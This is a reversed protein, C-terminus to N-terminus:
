RSKKEKPKFTQVGVGFTSPIGVTFLAKVGQDKMGQYLDNFILPTIAALGQQGVTVPQGIVDRGSALNIGTSVVPSLKGRAFSALPSLRTEGMFGKGNLEYIKGSTTAKRQAMLSQTFVRAYPQFGGWIDWRTNGSKIKGFDSSRPDLEVTIDGDTLNSITKILLMTSMGVAIFKAMDKAAEIRLQPPLKSYFGYDLGYKGLTVGRVALNPIDSLGLMNIRSAILRSAFLFWNLVPAASELGKMNGRGTATNIMSALGEYLKKNNAYTKGQEEFRDAYMTFIDWRLKNLYGVYARESAAVGRGIIPIKEAYPAGQFAEEREKVHLSEPDTIALKIKQAVDWRESNHVDDLWRNYVKEDAAAKFMFKLAENAIKPHATTAIVAQRLPASFDMSAMLTRPINLTKSFVEITKEASSKNESMQKMRRITIERKAKILEDQSQQAQKFTKPFQKQFEKNELLSTPKEEIAFDKNAIKQKITDTEKKNKKILSQLKKVGEDKNEGYFKNAELNEKTVEQIQKRLDEIEQTRKIKEKEKKPQEGSLLKDLKNLLQAEIRLNEARIAAEKKTIKKENYEGAIINRIDREQLDPIENKFQDHITKVVDALKYVGEEALSKVMKAVDPAIAFLEKAYPIITSNTEGRAKKLQERAHELINKREKVFDEHSKRSKPTSKKNKNIEKQANFAAVEDEFKKRDEEFKLKAEELKTYDANAVEKQKDTLPADNNASLETLMYDAYSGDSVTKFRGRIGLSRGAAKGHYENVTSVLDNLENLTKTYEKSSTDNKLERLRDSLEAGYRTLNVYEADSPIYDENKMKTLVKSVDWGKELLNDAEKITEVDHKTVTAERADIGFETEMKGAGSYNLSTPPYESHVLSKEEEIPPKPPEVIESKNATNEDVSSVEKNQEKGSQLYEKIRNLKEINEVRNKKALANEISHGGIFETFDSSKKLDDIYKVDTNFQSILNDIHRIADDKNNNNQSLFIQANEKISNDISPKGIIPEKPQEFGASGIISSKKTLGTDSNEANGNDISVNVNSKGLEGESNKQKNEKENNLNKNQEKGVTQEIIPEKPKPLSKQEAENNPKTLNDYANKMMFVADEVDKYQGGVKELVKKILYTPDIKLEIAKKKAANLIALKENSPNDKNFGSLANKVSASLEDVNESEEVLRVKRAIDRIEADDYILGAPANVANFEDRQEPTLSNEMKDILENAAKYRPDSRHILYNNSISQAEKYKKAGDEGFFQVELGKNHKKVADAYNDLEESNMEHIPKEPKPYSSEVINENKTRWRNNSKERTFGGGEVQSPIPEPNPVEKPFLKTAIDVLPQGYTDVTNKVSKEDHAQEAINSLYNKFDEPNNNAADKLTEASFGKVVDSNVLDKADSILKEESGTETPQEVKNAGENTTSAQAETNPVQTTQNQSEDLKQKATELADVTEKNDPNFNELAVNYEKQADFLNYLPELTHSFDLGELIQTNQEGLRKSQEIYKNKTEEPVGQQKSKNKFIAQATKNAVFVSKQAQSLDVNANETTADLDNKAKIATNLIQMKQDYEPRSYTGNDLGQKFIDATADHNLAMQYINGKFSTNKENKMDAAAGFVGMISMGLVGDLFAHGAEPLLNQAAETDGFGMKIVNNAINFYAMTAAGKTVNKGYKVAFDVYKNKANDLLEKTASETISKDTIGNAIKALEDSIPLRTIKGLDLLRGGEANAVSNIAAYLYQAPENDIFNKSDKLSADFSPLGFSTYAGLQQATKAGIGVEGALGETATSIALMGALNASTNLINRTVSVSSKLHLANPNNENGSFDKQFLEDKLKDAYVDKGNRLGTIDAVSMGLDAFPQLFSPIVNGLISNNAFYTSNGAMNIALDKTKPNDLYGLQQMADLRDQTSAGIVREMRHGSETDSGEVVGSQKAILDNVQQAIQQKILTPYKYIVENDVKGLDSQGDQVLNQDGSAIGQSIKNVANQKLADNYKLEAVGKQYNFLDNQEKNDSGILNSLISNGSNVAKQSRAYEVPNLKQAIDNVAQDKDPNEAVVQKIVHNLLEDSIPQMGFNLALKDQEQADLPANLNQTKATKLTTSKALNLFDYASKSSSLVENPNFNTGYAKNYKGIYDSLQGLTNSVNENNEISAGVKAGQTVYGITANLSKGTAQALTHFDQDTATKNYIRKQITTIDDAPSLFAPKNKLVLVGGDPTTITPQKELFPLPNDATPIVQQNDSKNVDQLPSQSTTAVPATSTINPAAATSTGNSTVKKKAGAKVAGDVADMPVDAISGDPFVMSTSKDTSVEGSYRKAGAAIAGEVQGEDLDATSGDPFIVKVKKM